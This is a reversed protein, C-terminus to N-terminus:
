DFPQPSVHHVRLYLKHGGLRLLEGYVVVPDLRHLDYTEAQLSDFAVRDYYGRMDPTQYLAAWRLDWWQSPYRVQNGYYYHPAPDYTLYQWFYGPVAVLQGPPHSHADARLLEEYSLPSYDAAAFPAPRPQVQGCAAAALALLVAALGLAVGYRATTKKM